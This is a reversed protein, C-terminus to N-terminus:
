VYERESACVYCDAGLFEVENQHCSGCIITETTPMQHQILVRFADAWSGRFAGIPRQQFNDPDDNEVLWVYGQHLHYGHCTMLLRARDETVSEPMTSCDPMVCQGNRDQTLRLCALCRTLAQM